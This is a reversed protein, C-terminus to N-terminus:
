LGLHNTFKCMCILRHYHADAALTHLGRATHAALHQGWTRVQQATLLFMAVVVIVVPRWCCNLRACVRTCLVTVCILLLNQVQTWWRAAHWVRLGGAPHSRRTRVQQAQGLQERIRQKAAAAEALQAELREKDLRATLEAQLLLACHCCVLECAQCPSLLTTSYTSHTAHLTAPLCVKCLVICCM